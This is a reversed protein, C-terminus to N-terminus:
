HIPKRLWPKCPMHTYSSQFNILYVIIENNVVVNSVNKRENVTGHPIKEVVSCLKCFLMGDDLCMKTIKM